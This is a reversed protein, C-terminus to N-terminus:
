AAKVNQQQFCLCGLLCSGTLCASWLVTSVRFLYTYSAATSVYYPGGVHEHHMAGKPIRQLVSEICLRLM